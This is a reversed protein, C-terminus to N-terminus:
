FSILYPLMLLKCASFHVGRLILSNKAGGMTYVEGGSREASLPQAKPWIKLFPPTSLIEIKESPQQSCPPSM